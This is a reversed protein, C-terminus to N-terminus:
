DVGLIFAVGCMGMFAYQFVKRLKKEGKRDRECMVVMSSMAVYREQLESIQKSQISNLTDKRALEEQQEAIIISDLWLSTKMIQDHQLDQECFASDILIYKDTLKIQQGSVSSILFM